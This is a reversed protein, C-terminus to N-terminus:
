DFWIEQDFVTASNPAEFWTLYFNLSCLLWPLPPLMSIWALDLLRKFTDLMPANFIEEPLKNWSIPLRVSSAAKRRHLPFSRHRLRVDLGRFDLESPAEFSEARALTVLWWLWIWLGTSYSKRIMRSLMSMEFRGACCAGSLKRRVIQAVTEHDRAFERPMDLQLWEPFLKVYGNKLTMVIYMLEILQSQYSVVHAQCNYSRFHDLIIM